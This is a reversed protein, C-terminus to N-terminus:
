KEFIRDYGIQALEIWRDYKLTDLGDLYNKWDTDSNPDLAGTCFEARRNRFYSTLEKAFESREEYDALSYIAYLFIEKPRPAEMTYNYVENCKNVHRTEWNDTDTFDVEYQWYSDDVITGSTYHWCQANQENYVNPHILRIQAEGGRHGTKGGESWDWDVGYEGWRQRLYSEPTCMFDLLKFAEVPHECDATIFTIYGTNKVIPAWGGKGTADKLPRLPEYVDLADSDPNFMTQCNGFVIGALYPDGNTPNIIGKIEQWSQTWTQETILGEKYLKNVFRLMQRFEDSKLPSDLKGNEVSFYQVDHYYTFANTLYNFPDTVSYSGFVRGMMPIEDAKGNGNPDKDRFAVLVNYLEDITTPKELGLKDLWEQNIWAQIMASSLSGRTISPFAFMPQNDAGAGRRLTQELLEPEDPFYLEFAKRFYYAYKEFYETLPIFYGDQGYTEGQQKNIGGVQWIVDPLREGSAIMLAIQTAANSNDMFLVFELNLGTQEELWKTYANNKYDTVGTDNIIALTITVPEDGPKVLPMEGHYEEFTKGSTQATETGPDGGAGCAALGLLLIAALLLALLKKMM